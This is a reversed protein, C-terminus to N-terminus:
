EEPLSFELSDGESVGHDTTWDYVVELVFQGRGPYRQDEGDEEPGPEPAHHISTITGDADAYVIDIGFDMRRMVFTRDAVTEYVFLMGRDPPLTETDSLGTFRLSSTDAIAATVSGLTEGSASVARVTTTEYGAHVTPTSETPSTTTREGDSACGALTVAAAGVTVLYTRRDM